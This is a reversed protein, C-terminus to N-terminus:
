EAVTPHYYEYTKRNVLEDPNIFRKDLRSAPHMTEHGVIHPPLVLKGSPSKRLDVLVREPHEPTGDGSISVGAAGDRWDKTYNDPGGAFFADRDIDQKLTKWAEQKDKENGFAHIVLNGYDLLAKEDTPELGMYWEQYRAFAEKALRVQEDPTKKEVQRPKAEDWGLMEKWWGAEAM